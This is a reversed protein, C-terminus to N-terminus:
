RGDTFTILPADGPGAEVVTGLVWAGEPGLPAMVEPLLHPPVALLLGGSTQADCLVVADTTTVGAWDVHDTDDLNRQSGGAVAGAEVLERVGDIVPVSAVELEAAAGSARLVESLHGVLGFGTVDTACRIGAAVAAEAASRNPHCMWDVARDEAARGALGRKVATTLVGVGLPKTLVLRDGPQAADNTLLQEPHVVGTVSLGFKPEDDDISHGGVLACGADALVSAAGDLVEGLLEWGLAARPWAVINLATIPRGGMAWVDSLANTAAIRGWTAPDDVIPTFFDLTQVLAVDDGLRFVGADDASSPDVMVEPRTPLPVRMADLASRLEAASLKCGCGAGRSFETLRQPETTSM